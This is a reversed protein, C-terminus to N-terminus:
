SRDDGEDNLLRLQRIVEEPRARCMLLDDLRAVPADHCNGLCHGAVLQVDECRGIEKRAKNILDRGGSASCLPGQCVHLVHKAPVSVQLAECDEILGCVVEGSVGFYVAMPEIVGAPVYGLRSQVDELAALLYTSHRPHKELIQQILENSLLVPQQHM